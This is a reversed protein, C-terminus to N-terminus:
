ICYLIHVGGSTPSGHGLVNEVYQILYINGDATVVRMNPLVGPQYHMGIMVMMETTTQGGQIKDTGRIGPAMAAVATTFDSWITLQGSDDYTPPSTPGEQQITIQHRCAGRDLVPFGDVIKVFSPLM